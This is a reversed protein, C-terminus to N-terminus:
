KRASPINHVINGSGLIMVGQERLKRMEQALRFHETPSMSQVFVLHFVPVDANPFLKSLFVGFGWPRFGQNPDKFIKESFSEAISTAIEPAGKTEM